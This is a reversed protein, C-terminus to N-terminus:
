KEEAPNLLIQNILRLLYAFFIVSPCSGINLPMTKRILGQEEL